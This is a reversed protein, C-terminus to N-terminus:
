LLKVLFVEKQSYVTSIGDDKGVLVGGLHDDM